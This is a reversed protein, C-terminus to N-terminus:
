VLVKEIVKEAEGRVGKLIRASALARPLAILALEPQTRASVTNALLQLVGQGKTLSRPRWTAGSKYKTSLVLGIRLPKSGTKGGLKEASIKTAEFSETLRMGLRRPYPHVRGLEDVVAYEDSYYTAGAQILKSVLTSKGSYSLGPIVIAKGDWGVVGAHVFVRRPAHEAVTLQAHSEFADLLDDLNRTRAVMENNWYVQNLRRVRSKPRVGATFSYLHDVTSSRAPKWLPPLRDTVRKMLQRNDVRIGVRVGYCIVSIGTTWRLGDVQENEPSPKSLRPLTM